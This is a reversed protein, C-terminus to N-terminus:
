KLTTGIEGARYLKRLGTCINLCWIRGYSLGTCIFRLIMCPIYILYVYIVTWIFVEFESFRQKETPLKFSNKEIYM